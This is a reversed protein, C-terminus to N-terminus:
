VEPVGHVLIQFARFAGHVFQLNFDLSLGKRGVKVEQKPVKSYDNKEVLVWKQNEYVEREGKGNTRLWPKEEILPVLICLIDTELLM